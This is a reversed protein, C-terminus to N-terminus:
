LLRADDPHKALAPEIVKLGREPVGNFIMLRGLNARAEVNDPADNVVSQYLGVADSVRGLKEAARGAMVRATADKPRIQLANRFEISAKAFDGASFLAQGRNM